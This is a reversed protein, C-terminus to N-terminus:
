VAPLQGGVAAAVGAEPHFNGVRRGQASFIQQADPQVGRLVRFDRGETVDDIVQGVAAQVPLDPQIDPLLAINLVNENCSGRQGGQFDAGSEVIGM